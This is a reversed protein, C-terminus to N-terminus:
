RFCDVFQIHYYWQQFYFVSKKTHIRSQNSIFVNLTVFKWEWYFLLITTPLYMSKFFLSSRWVMCVILWVGKVWVWLSKRLAIESWWEWLIWDMIRIRVMRVLLIPWNTQFRLGLFIWLLYKVEKHLNENSVHLDLRFLSKMGIGNWM